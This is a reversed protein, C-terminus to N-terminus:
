IIMLCIAICVKKKQRASLLESPEIPTTHHVVVAAATEGDGDTSTTQVSNVVTVLCDLALISTSQVVGPITATVM